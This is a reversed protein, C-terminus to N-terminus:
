LPLLDPGTILVVGMIVLVAGLVLRRTVREVRRLFIFTFLIAFLSTPSSLPDVIVVRGRSLAEFLALLAFANLLASGAFYAYARRPAALADRVDDVGPNRVVLFGFLGVLGATENLAAGELPTIASNTFAFRRAVSGAGFAVAATLPFALQHLDWGSIDGGESFALTILGAVVVLIGLGMQPTVTEGLVVVALVSAWVPRTNIGASNISSGLRKVGGFALVRAVATAVLGTVVFLAVVWTANAFVDAGRGVVALWYTTASITVVTLAVQYPEGGAEMGLKSLPSGAGWGAAALLALGVTSVDM